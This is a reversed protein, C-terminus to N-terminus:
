MAPAMSILTDLESHLGMFDTSSFEGNKPLPVDVLPYFLMGNGEAVIGLPPDIGFLTEENSPLGAGANEFKYVDVNWTPLKLIFLLRVRPLYRRLESVPSAPARPLEAFVTTPKPGRLQDDLAIRYVATPIPNPAGTRYDIIRGEAVDEFVGFGIVSSGAVVEQLSRPVPIAASWDLLMQFENGLPSHASSGGASHDHDHPAGTVPSSDDSDACGTVEFAAVLGLLAIEGCRMM